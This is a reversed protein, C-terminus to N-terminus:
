VSELRERVWDVVKQADTLYSTSSDQDFLEAPIGNAADPYRTTTYALNLRRLATLLPASAGLKRGLTPLTHTLPPSQRQSEIFLAKLVKEAAQQCFFACAYHREAQALAKATELDELGQQWWDRAEQRM